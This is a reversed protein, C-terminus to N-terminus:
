AHAASQFASWCVLAEGIRSATDKATLARANTVPCPVSVCVRSRSCMRQQATSMAHCTVPGDQREAWRQSLRLSAAQASRGPRGPSRGTQQYSMPLPLGCSSFRDAAQLRLDPANHRKRISNRVIAHMHTRRDGGRSFQQRACKSTGAGVLNCHLEWRCNRTTSISANLTLCPGAPTIAQM